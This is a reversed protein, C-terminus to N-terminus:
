RKIIRKIIQWIITLILYWKTKLLEVVKYLGFYLIQKKLAPKLRNFRDKLWVIGYVILVFIAFYFVLRLM